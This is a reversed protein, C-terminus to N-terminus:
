SPPVAEPSAIVAKGPAVNPGLVGVGPSRSFIMFIVIAGVRALM